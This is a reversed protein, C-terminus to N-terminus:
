LICAQAQARIIVSPGSHMSVAYSFLRHEWFCFTTVCIIVYLALSPWAIAWVGEAVRLPYRRRHPAPLPTQLSVVCHEPLTESRKAAHRQQRSLTARAAVLLVTGLALPVYVWCYVRLQDPLTCPKHASTRAESSLSLLQYGPQRVGMAISLSKVTVEPIRRGNATHTYECYDHDDGSFILTPQLENLLLQSTEPTFLTQYGQGRVAPLSGKERLPGCSSGPLRYLPIHTFLILPADANHQARIHRLYALEQPLGATRNRGSEERHWDEDVLAPADIMFLSHGGLFAQQALPGFVTKYRYRASTSTGQRNGLGVDHNGPIYYVPLSRPASFISRFRRISEQYEEIPMDAFGNDMMDGLFIVAHPHTGKAVRWAKRLNMDVFIRSVARLFSNREPYSRQDLIQPDAILLIHTAPDPWRCRTGATIFIGLEFWLVVALWAIRM